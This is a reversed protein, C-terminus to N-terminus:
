THCHCCYIWEDYCNKKRTVTISIVNHAIGIWREHMKITYTDGWLDFVFPNIRVKIWNCGLLHGDIHLKIAM